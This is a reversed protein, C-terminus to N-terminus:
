PCISTLSVTAHNEFVRVASDYFRSGCSMFKQLAKGPHCDKEIGGIDNFCDPFYTKEIKQLLTDNHRAAGAADGCHSTMWSGRLCAAFDAFDKCNETLDGLVAKVKEQLSRLCRRRLVPYREGNCPLGTTMTWGLDIFFVAVHELVRWTDRPASEMACCLDFDGTVM